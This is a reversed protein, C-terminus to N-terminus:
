LAEFFRSVVGPSQDCNLTCPGSWVISMRVSRMSNTALRARGAAQGTEASPQEITSPARHEPTAPLAAIAPVPAVDRYGHVWRKAGSFSLIPRVDNSVSGDYLRDTMNDLVLKGAHSQVLLLAHDANVALDRLLVLKVRDGDIGAAVLMQMKLIAFDECDGSGRAITQGATAWYDDDRYNRDDNVYAIQHNVWLNVRQLIEMEDLSPTVGARQLAARMLPAPAARRVRDWRDDFRTQEVPIALTGLESSPDAEGGPLGNGRGWGRDPALGYQTCDSAPTLGAGPQPQSGPEVSIRDSAAAAGIAAVSAGQQSMRIRDLATYTVEAIPSPTKYAASNHVACDGRSASVLPRQAAEADLSGASAYCPAASLAAAAIVLASWPRGTLLLPKMMGLPM